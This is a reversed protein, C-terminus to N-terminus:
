RVVSLREVAVYESTQLTCVYVGPALGRTSLPVTHEGASFRGTALVATRRGRVDLLAVEAEDATPLYFSVDAAGRVPNPTIRLSGQREAPRGEVGTTGAYTFTLRNLAFGAARMDIRLLHRGAPLSITGMLVTQYTSAGGTSGFTLDETLAEEDLSLQFAGGSESAVRASLRYEGEQEVDVTYALWERTVVNTVDYGGGNDRSPQIDVAEGLRIGGGENAISLDVYGVSAGGLDFYEAELSGPLPIPAMLYPSRSGSPCGAGVVVQVTDSVSVYGAEDSARAQVAYCGDAVGPVTVEYPAETDTGLLGGDQLFEVKSVAVDDTATAMITFDSGATLTTDAAPNLLGVSPYADPNQYVHVYDVLMQQPFTTTADPYGPWDGGVALNLLIHFPSDFPAPYAGGGSTWSVQTYFLEDDVYWRIRRPEWEIAFVHFDDAFTGTSLEYNDGQFLHGVSGGGYHLTGYIRDTDHGLYEMIDIEGGAPWGGYPSNTPLMWFAPWIGQGFPLKIRAEIRGYTWAALGRTVLRASTYDRGGFSEERAEIILHGGEARANETRDTYYEWENNGWGSGGIDYTWKTPDPAGDVDFEDAWVLQWNQAAASHMSLALALFLFVYFRPM